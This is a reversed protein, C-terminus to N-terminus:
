FSSFEGTSMMPLELFREISRRNNNLSDLIRRLIRQYATRNQGSSNLVNSMVSNILSTNTTADAPVVHVLHKQGMQDTGLILRPILQKTRGGTEKSRVDTSSGNSSPQMTESRQRKVNKLDIREEDEKRPMASTSEVSQVRTVNEPVRKTSVHEGRNDSTEVVIRKEPLSNKDAYIWFQKIKKQEGSSDNEVTAYASADNRYNHKDNLYIDQEGQSTVYVYSQPWLSRMHYSGDIQPVITVQLDHRSGGHSSIRKIRRLVWKVTAHTHDNCLACETCGQQCFLWHGSPLHYVDGRSLVVDTADSPAIPFPGNYFPAELVRRYLHYNGTPPPSITRFVFERIIHEWYFPENFSHDSIHRKQSRIKAQGAQKSSSQIGMSILSLQAFLSNYKYCTSCHSISKKKKTKDAIFSDRFRYTHKSSLNQIITHTQANHHFFFPPFKFNTFSFIFSYYFPFPPIIPIQFILISVNRFIYNYFHIFKLILCIISHM